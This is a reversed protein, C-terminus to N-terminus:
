VAKAGESAWGPVYAKTLELGHRWNDSGDHWSVNYVVGGPRVNLGTIIGSMRTDRTRLYVVDGIWYTTNITHEM